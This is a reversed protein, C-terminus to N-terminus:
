GRRIFVACFLCVAQAAAITLFFGSSGWALVAAGVVSSLIAGIRGISAASGIGTSRIEDPFINAALAYLLAQVGGLSFGQVAIAAHLWVLGGPVPPFLVLAVAGSTAAVASLILPKRIGARGAIAGLLVGSLVCGTNYAMLGASAAEVPFGLDSLLVPLWSFYLYGSLLSAAFALWLAFTDPWLRAARVVTFFGRAKEAEHSTGAPGTRAARAAAFSPSEPLWFFHIVAVAIPLAGALLFLMRWGLWPLLPVAVLGGVVGGTPICIVSIAVALSRRHAPTFEAVLATAVPLAAGLGLGAVLRLGAIAAISQALFLASTAMGFLTTSAILAFRRGLRDGIYGGSAAGIMAGTLGLGFIPALDAKDLGWDSILAPASFAIVQTDFGDLIIALACLVLVAKQRATWIGSGPSIGERGREMMM